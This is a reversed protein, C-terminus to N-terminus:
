RLYLRAKGLDLGKRQFEKYTRVWVFSVYRGQRQIGGETAASRLPLTYTAARSNTTDYWNLFLTHFQEFEGEWYATWSISDNPVEFTATIWVPDEDDTGDRLVEFTELSFTHGPVRFDAGRPGLLGGQGPLIYASGAPFSRSVRHVKGGSQLDSATFIVRGLRNQVEQTRISVVLQDGAAWLPDYSFSWLEPRAPLNTADAFPLMIGGGLDLTWGAAEDATPFTNPDFRLAMSGGTDILVEIEYGSWPFQPQDGTGITVTEDRGTVILNNTLKGYSEVIYGFTTAVNPNVEATMLATWITRYGYANPPSPESLKVTVTQNEAWTLGHNDWTFNTRDASVSTAKSLLFEQNNVAVALEPHYTSTFPSDLIITLRDFFPTLQGQVTQISLALQQLTYMQGRYTFQARGLSGTDSTYGITTITTSQGPQSHIGVTMTTSLFTHEAPVDDYTPCSAAPPSQCVVNGYNQAQATQSPNSTEALMAVAALMVAVLLLPALKIGRHSAARNSLGMVTLASRILNKREM